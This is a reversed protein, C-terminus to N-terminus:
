KITTLLGAAYAAGFLWEALPGARKAHLRWAAAYIPGCAAGALLLLWPSGSGSGWLVAAPPATWLLGRLSHMGMDRWLTGENRGMDLSGWWPWVSGLFCAFGVAAALWPSLGLAAAATGLYAAWLLRISTAGRGTWEHWSSSGRVRFLAAGGITLLIIILDPM